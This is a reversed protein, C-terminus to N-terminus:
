IQMWELALILIIDSIFYVALALGFFITLNSTLNVIDKSFLIFYIKWFTRVIM